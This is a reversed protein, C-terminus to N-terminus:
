FDAPPEDRHGHWFRLLMVTRSEEEIRYILRYTKFALLELTGPIVAIRVPRGMRAHLPDSLEVHAFEFLDRVYQRGREPEGRTSWYDDLEDLDCLAAETVEVKYGPEAM